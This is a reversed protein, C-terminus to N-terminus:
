TSTTWCPPPPAQRRTGSSTSRPLLCREGDHTSSTALRTAVTDLIKPSSTGCGSELSLVGIASPRVAPLGRYITFLAHRGDPLVQPWRHDSELQKADPSTVRQVEGGDGDVRWLGRTVGGPSFLITGDPGWSAGSLAGGAPVAAITVPAERNQLNLKRLNRGQQFGLWRGDASFFPSHAGETGHLARAEIDDIAHLYLRANKGESVGRFAVRTGDPDDSGMFALRTGDPSLALQQRPSEDDFLAVRPPPALTLRKVAPRATRSSRRALFDGLGGAAAAVLLPVMWRGLPRPRKDVVAAKASQQQQPPPWALSSAADEIELRADGIAQLRRTKDKELCRRLLKRITSPSESPLATWDPERELV